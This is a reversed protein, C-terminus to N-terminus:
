HAGSGDITLEERPWSPLRDLFQAAAIWPSSSLLFLSTLHQHQLVPLRSLPGLERSTQSPQLPLGSPKSGLFNYHYNLAPLGLSSCLTYLCCFIALM